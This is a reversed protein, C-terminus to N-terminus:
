IDEPKPLGVLWGPGNCEQDSVVELTVRFKPIIGHPGRREPIEVKLQTYFQGEDEAVGIDVIKAGLLPEIYAAHYRFEQAKWDAPAVSAM